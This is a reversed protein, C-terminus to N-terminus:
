TATSAADKAAGPECHPIWGGAGRLKLSPTFVRVGFVVTIEIGVMDLTKLVGMGGM